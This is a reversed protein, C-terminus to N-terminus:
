NKIEGFDNGGPNGDGYMSRQLNDLETRAIRIETSFKDTWDSYLVGIFSQLEAGREYLHSSFEFEDSDGDSEA